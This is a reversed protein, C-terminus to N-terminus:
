RPLHTKPNIREVHWDFYLANQHSYHVAQTPLKDFWGPLPDKYDNQDTDRIAITQAPSIPRGASDTVGPLSTMKLVDKSAADGNAPYGWPRVPGYDCVFYVPADRVTVAKEYAPCVFVDARQMWEQNPALNLYKELKSPLSGSDYSNYWPSQGAWLPGPFDGDHDSAYMAIGAAIQRLNSSCKTSDAQARVRGVVPLLMAALVAIISLVVLLEILTFAHQRRVGSYPGSRNM